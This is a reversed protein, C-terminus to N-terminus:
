LHQLMDAINLIDFEEKQKPIADMVKMTRVRTSHAKECPKCLCGQRYRTSTGHEALHLEKGQKQLPLREQPTLGGWMGYTEPIGLNLCEQWVPCLNCVQRAVHYYAEPRDAELPPFWIDGNKGTCLAASIWDPTGIM